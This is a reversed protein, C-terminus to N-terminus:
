RVTGAPVATTNQGPVRHLPWFIPLFFLVVVVLVLTLGVGTKVFDRFRYKGPGYVLICSPELPAIFSISAALLIAIAFTRENVGLERATSLAVPLVVLAAAANSMPQTLTITLIFFAGLITTVGLPQLRAIGKALFEAAGTKQMAAGFATMGGILILLRWDIFQYAEDITLCRTIVTLVAAVLFAVSLPAAGTGGAVIALIFFLTSLTAKNRRYLSPSLEELVTLDRNRRLADFVAPAGQVLLLDGLRLRINGLKEQVSHGERYLALATLNYRARFEAEKLTRGILSSRPNVLIEAIKINEGQLAPDDLKLEPRIEIGATAKVRMLDEVKGKILLIDDAAIITGPGPLIRQKGRLVELIRFDMKSLDSEFIPQGIMHSQPLVVIESVYERIAYDATLSEDPYDPLLHKGVVMMYAIGVGLIILGIPTIEFLSLPEMGARAIYGSVAVNTSTGILTCTGGLISAYAVPMLVKSPSVKLKRCAALVPGVFLATATTNNMFASLGGVVGMVLLMLRGLSKGAVKVLRSSVQDVVGTLQLAGGIVFISGLIIIIDSSFGQFAEDPTLIGTVILTSVLLLTLLDVSLVETAFLVVALILLGLVLAIQM